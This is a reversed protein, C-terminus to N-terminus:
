RKKKKPMKKLVAKMSKVCIKKQGESDGNLGLMTLETLEQPTFLGTDREKSFTELMFFKLQSSDFGCGESISLIEQATYPLIEVEVYLVVADKDVFGISSYHQLTPIAAKFNARYHLYRMYQALADKYRGEEKLFLAMIRLLECYDQFNGNSMAKAYYEVSLRNFEGWLRDKVGGNFPKEYLKSFTFIDLGISDLSYEHKEMYFMIHPNEKLLIAGQETLKWYRETIYPAIDEETLNEVIRVCLDDKKGSVKLGRDSAIKKMETAKLYPLAEAATSQRIYGKRELSKFVENPFGIGYRSRLYDPYKSEGVKFQEALAVMVLEQIISKSPSNSRTTVSKVEGMTNQGQVPRNDKRQEGKKGFLSNLIGMGIDKGTQM